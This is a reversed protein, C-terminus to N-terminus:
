IYELVENEKEVVVEGKSIHYNKLKNLTKFTAMSLNYKSDIWEHMLYDELEILFEKTYFEGGLAKNIRAIAADSLDPQISRIMRWNDVPGVLIGIFCNRTSVPDLRGTILAELIKDKQELFSKM